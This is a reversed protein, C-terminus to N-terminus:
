RRELTALDEVHHPSPTCIYLTHMRTAVSWGVDESWLISQVCHGYRQAVKTASAPVFTTTMVFQVPGHTASHSPAPGPQKRVQRLVPPGIAVRSVSVTQLARGYRCGLSRGAGEVFVDVVRGGTPTLSDHM